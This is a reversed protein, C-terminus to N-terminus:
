YKYIEEINVTGVLAANTTNTGKISLALDASASITKNITSVIPTNNGPYTIHQITTSINNNKKNIMFALTIIGRSGIGYIPADNTENVTKFVGVYNGGRATEKISAVTDIVLANSLSNNLLGFLIGGFEYISPTISMNGKISFNESALFSINSKLSTVIESLNSFEKNASSNTLTVNGGSTSIVNDTESPTYTLKDWVITSTDVIDVNNTLTLNNM